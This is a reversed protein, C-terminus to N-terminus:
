QLDIGENLPDHSSESHQNVKESGMMSQEQQRKFLLFEELFFKM